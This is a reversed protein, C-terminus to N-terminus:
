LHLEPETLSQVCKLCHCVLCVQRGRGIAVHKLFSGDTGPSPLAPTGNNPLTANGLDCTPANNPYNPDRKAEIIHRDVAWYFDRLTKSWPLIARKDVPQSPASLALPFILSLFLFIITLMTNLNSPYLNTSNSSQLHSHPSHKSGEELCIPPVPFFGCAKPTNLDYISYIQGASARPFSSLTCCGVSIPSLALHFSLLM